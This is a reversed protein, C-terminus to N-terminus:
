RGCAERVAARVRGPANSILAAVGARALRAAEAPEDV